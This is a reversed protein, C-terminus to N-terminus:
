NYLNARFDKLETAKLKYDDNLIENINKEFLKLAEVINKRNFDVMDTAMEINSLALRTTDKFGTSVLLQALKNDKINECLAQAVVLPFHSILAVARDHEEPSTVVPEAGLEKIIKELADQAPTINGGIPTIAWKAGKFLGVFSNEWGSKETGAMPHSPIFNYKYEKNSVFNKLSCVDTVITTEPLLDNLADLIELTANIPTCVFVLDCDKLNNYDTYVNKAKLTRSIGVLEYEVNLSLEKFISGGILGLGIVGIKM